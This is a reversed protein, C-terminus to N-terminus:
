SPLHSGRHSLAPSSIHPLVPIRRSTPVLLLPSELLAERFRFKGCGSASVSTRRDANKIIRACSPLWCQLIYPLFSISNLPLPNREHHSSRASPAYQRYYRMPVHLIDGAVRAKRGLKRKCIFPAEALTKREVSHQEQQPAASADVKISCQPLHDAILCANVKTEERDSNLEIATLSFHKWMGFIPIQRAPRRM